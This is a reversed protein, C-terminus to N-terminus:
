AVDEATDVVATPRRSVLLFMAGYTHNRRLLERRRFKSAPYSGLIFCVVNLVRRFNSIFFPDM